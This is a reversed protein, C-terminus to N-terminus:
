VPDSKNKEDVKDMLTSLCNLSGLFRLAEAATAEGPGVGQAWCPSCLFITKRQLIRMKM